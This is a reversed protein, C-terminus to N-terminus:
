FLQIQGWTGTVISLQSPSVINRNKCNLFYRPLICLLIIGLVEICYHNSQLQRKELRVINFYIKHCLIRKVNESDDSNGFGIKKSEALQAISGTKAWKRVNKRVHWCAYFCYFSCCRTSNVTKNGSLSQVRARMILRFWLESIDPSHRVTKILSLSLYIIQM